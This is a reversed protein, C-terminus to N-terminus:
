SWRGRVLNAWASINQNIILLKGQYSDVNTLGAVTTVTTVTSVTTITGSQVQNRIANASRDYWAPYIIRTLAQKFWSLFNNGVEQELETAGGEPAPAAPPNQVAQKIAELIAEASEQKAQTAGGIVTVPLSPSDSNEGADKWDDSVDSAKLQLRIHDAM